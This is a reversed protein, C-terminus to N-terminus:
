ACCHINGCNTQLCTAQEADVCVNPCSCEQGLVTGKEAKPASTGFSDVSLADMDLKLKANM